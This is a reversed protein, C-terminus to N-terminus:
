GNNIWEASSTATEFLKVRKLRIGEPLRNNIIEAFHAVLNECTPQFQTIITNGYADCIQQALPSKENLVLAHDYVSIINQSVIKKLDTFDLIMGNKPSTTDSIPNGEVTVYLKYSHGHIHCCKGDYGMLSHAGEFCFEKTIEIM